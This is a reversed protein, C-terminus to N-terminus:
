AGRGDIVTYSIAQLTTSATANTVTLVGSVNGTGVGLTTMTWALTDGHNVTFAGTYLAYGGNLSYYIKGMGTRTATVSIPATFGSLTQVNTSGIDTDYINTWSVAAPTITGGGPAVGGALGALVAGTV